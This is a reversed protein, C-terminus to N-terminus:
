AASRRALEDEAAERVCRQVISDADAAARILARFDRLVDPRVRAAQEVTDGEALRALLYVAHSLVILNHITTTGDEDADTVAEALRVPDAAIREMEAHLADDRRDEATYPTDILSYSKAHQM